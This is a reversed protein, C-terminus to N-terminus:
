KCVKRKTNKIVRSMVPEENFGSLDIDIDNVNPFTVPYNGFRALLEARKVDFNRSIARRQLWQALWKEGGLFVFKLIREAVLFIGFSVAYILFIPIGFLVLKYLVFIPWLNWLKCCIVCVSIVLLLVLAFVILNTIWPVGYLLHEGTLVKDQPLPHNAYFHSMQSDGLSLLVYHKSEYDFSAYHVPVLIVEICDTSLLTGAANAVYWVDKVTLLMSLFRTNKTDVMTPDFPLPQGFLQRIDSFDITGDKLFGYTLEPIQNDLCILKNGAVAMPVYMSQYQFNTISSFINKPACSILQNLVFTYFQNKSTQFPCIHYDTNEKWQDTSYEKIQQPTIKYRGLFGNKGREFDTLKMSSVRVDRNM